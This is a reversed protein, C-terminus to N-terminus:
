STFFCDQVNEEMYLSIDVKFGTIKGKSISTFISSNKFVM